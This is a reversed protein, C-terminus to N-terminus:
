PHNKLPRNPTRPLAALDVYIAPVMHGPLKARLYERLDRASLGTAATEPSRRVVYAVLQTEHGLELAKVAAERLAPHSQLAADVEGIEVRFGRIKVQFDKRGRHEILGGPMREALDGMRYERVGTAPDVLRFCRQTAEDDNWYGLAVYRSQVHIEGVESEGLITGDESKLLVEVGDVPYGIPVLRTMLETQPTIMLHLITGTETSGLGTFFQVQSSFVRRAAAIDSAFVREGGFIVLRVSAQPIGGEYQNAFQRFVSAVSHYITIRQDVLWRALDILGAQRIDFPLLAAGNLLSGFICYVSGMVSCSYFLTMRDQPEIAQLHTRRMCGHLVNRQNQMVGKPRGTSGSTYIVYALADPSINLCLDLEDGPQAHLQEIDLVKTSPSIWDGVTQAYRAETLLLPAEVDQVIHSNREQPFSPDLPVYAHGAKLVALICALYNGGKDAYIAVRTPADGASRVLARAIRNAERNLEAYTWSRTGDIVAERQGHLRVQQEFRAAVSQETDAITFGKIAGM